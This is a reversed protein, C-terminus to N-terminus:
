STNDWDDLSDSYPTTVKAYAQKLIVSTGDSIGNLGQVPRILISYCFGNELPPELSSPPRWLGPGSKNSYQSLYPQICQSLLYFMVM